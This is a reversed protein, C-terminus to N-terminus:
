TPYRYRLRYNITGTGPKNARTNNTIQVHAIQTLHAKITNALESEIRQMHYVDYQLFLNSSGVDRIIDLAQRAWKLSSEVSQLFTTAHYCLSHPRGMDAWIGSSIAQATIATMATGGM